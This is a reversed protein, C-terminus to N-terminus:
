FLLVLILLSFLVVNICLYLCSQQGGLTTGHICPPNQHCLLCLFTVIKRPIVYIGCVFALRHLSIVFFFHDWAPRLRSVLTCQLAIVVSRPIHCLYYYSVMCLLFPTFAQASNCLDCVLCRSPPTTPIPRFSRPHSIIMIAVCPALCNCVTHTHTIYVYLPFFM